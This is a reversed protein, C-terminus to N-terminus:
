PAQRAAPVGDDGRAGGSESGDRRVELFALVLLGVLSLGFVVLPWARPTQGAYVLSRHHEVYAVLVVGAGAVWGAVVWRGLARPVTLAGALPVGLALLALWGSMTWHWVNEAPDAARSAMAVAGLLATVVVLRRLPGLDGLRTRTVGPRGVTSWLVVICALVLLIHGGLMLWFGTSSGGELRLWFAWATVLIVLSWSSAATLALFVGTGAPWRTRPVLLLVAGIAVLCAMVLVHVFLHGSVDRFPKDWQFPNFAGVALLVAGVLAAVGAAQVSRDATGVTPRRVARGVPPPTPEVFPASAATVGASAEAGGPPGVTSVPGTRPPPASGTMTADASVVAPGAVHGPADTPDTRVEGQGDTPDTRMQGGADPVVVARVRVVGKGTPGRVTVTGEVLGARSTDVSVAFGDATEEVRIRRDSPEYSCSRALPPGPVAVTLIPRDVDQVVDGFDLEVPSLALTAEALAAAAAEAVYRIDGDAIESLRDYAGAAAPLNSGLLRSRLESVAGLRTFVNPDRSAALLDPPVEAPKVRRRHSRALYLEGQMEVDRTPTQGPTTTRVREFVYDYLENLSVWGDEDRDAEGTSLGRVVADTFVSTPASHDDALTDGEFAYEMASSATIVARGRGGDLGGSPFSSLVNVPGAARVSVGKSFAGGYCCDLLLVISRSRSARMGRHVFDASVATSALRDLRTNRTAFFLEGAENKVGHCAFHLLLVDDPRSDAFLGEVQAQVEYSPQNQVVRVEFDGIRPDSLVAALASADAQPSRLRRLGEHEYADSAVILAKRASSM